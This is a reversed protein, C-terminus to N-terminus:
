KKNASRQNRIPLWIWGAALILWIQARRFYGESALSLEHECKSPSGTGGLSKKAGALSPPAGGSARPDSPAAAGDAADGLVSAPPRRM